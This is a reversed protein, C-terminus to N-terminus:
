QQVKRQGDCGRLTQGVIGPSAQNGIHPLVPLEPSVTQLLSKYVIHLHPDLTRADSDHGYVDYFGVRTRYGGILARIKAGAM